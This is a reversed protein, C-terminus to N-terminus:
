QGFRLALVNTAVHFENASEMEKTKAVLLLSVFAFILTMILDINNNIGRVKLHFTMFLVSIFAIISLLRPNKLDNISVNFIWALFIMLNIITITETIPILGGFLYYKIPTLQSFDVSSFKVLGSFASQFVNQSLSATTTAIPLVSQRLFTNVLSYLASFGIVAGGAYLLSQGSNGAIQKIESIILGDRKAFLMVVNLVTMTLYITVVETGVEKEFTTKFLILSALIIILVSTESTLRRLTDAM